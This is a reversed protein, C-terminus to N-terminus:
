YFFYIAPNVILIKVSNGGLFLGLSLVRGKDGPRDGPGGPGCGKGANKKPYGEDKPSGM